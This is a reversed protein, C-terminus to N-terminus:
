GGESITVVIERHKFPNSQINCHFISILCDFVFDIANGFSVILVANAITDM